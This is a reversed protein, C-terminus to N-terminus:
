RRRGRRASGERQRQRRQAILAQVAAANGTRAATMLVTEGAPLAANADAGAALLQEIMAANGNTAALHLPTVGHRNVVQAKAGARLLAEAMQCITSSPPGICRRRGTPKPRTSTPRDERPARAGAATNGSKVADVLSVAEAHVARDAASATLSVALLLGLGLRRRRKGGAMAM